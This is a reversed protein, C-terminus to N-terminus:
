DRASYIGSLHKGVEVVIEAVNANTFRVLSSDDPHDDSGAVGSKADPFVDSEVCSVESVFVIRGVDFCVLRGDVAIDVLTDVVGIDIRASIIDIGGKVVAEFAEIAQQELAASIPV